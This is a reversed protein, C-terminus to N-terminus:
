PLPLAAVCSMAGQIRFKSPMEYWLEAIDSKPNGYECRAVTELSNPNLSQPM